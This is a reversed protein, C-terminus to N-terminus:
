QDLAGSEHSDGLEVGVIKFGVTLNNSLPM